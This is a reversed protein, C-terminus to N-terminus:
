ETLQLVRCCVTNPLTATSPQAPTRNSSQAGAFRAALDPLVRASSAAAAASSYAALHSSIRLCAPGASASTGGQRFNWEHREKMALHLAASIAAAACLPEASSCTPASMVQARARAM